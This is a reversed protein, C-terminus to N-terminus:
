RQGLHGALNDAAGGSSPRSLLLVAAHRASRAAPPGAALLASALCGLLLRCADRQVRASALRPAADANRVARTGAHRGGARSMRQVQGPPRETLEPEM